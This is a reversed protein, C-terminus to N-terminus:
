DTGLEDQNCFYFFQQRAEKNTNYPGIAIRPAIYFYWGDEEKRIPDPMKSCQQKPREDTM